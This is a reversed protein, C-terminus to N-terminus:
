SAATGFFVFVGEKTVPICGAVGWKDNSFHEDNDLLSEAQACAGKITGDHKPEVMKFGHKMGIEGSYSHGSEHRSRDVAERFADAATKGSQVVVFTNAGM